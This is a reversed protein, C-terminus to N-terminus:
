LIMINEKEAKSCLAHRLKTTVLFLRATLLMLLMFEIGQFNITKTTFSTGFEMDGHAHNCLM